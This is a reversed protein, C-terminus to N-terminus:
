LTKTKTRVGGEGTSLTSNPHPNKFILIRGSNNERNAFSFLNRQFYRETNAM